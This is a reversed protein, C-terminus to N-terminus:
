REVEWIDFNDHEVILFVITEWKLPVYKFLIDHVPKYYKIKIQGEKVTGNEYDETTVEDDDKGCTDLVEITHYPVGNRQTTWVSSFVAYKVSPHYIYFSYLHEDIKHLKSISFKLNHLVRTDDKFKSIKIPCNNIAEQKM